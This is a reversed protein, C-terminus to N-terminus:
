VDSLGIWTLLTALNDLCSLSAFPEAQIIQTPQQLAIFQWPAALIKM